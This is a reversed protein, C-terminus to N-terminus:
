LPVAELLSVEMPLEAARDPRLGASRLLAGYEASTREAGGTMVMMHLDFAVSLWPHSGDPLIREAVLVRGGGAPMAARCNALIRRARADDWNHLVRSLIHVEGEPVGDLFDGEVLSCRGEAVFHLLRERAPELTGRRDLLVGIVHQHRALVAELVAGDGGGVDVVRSVASFDHAAALNEAFGAGAATGAVFRRAEQPRRSLYSHVDEGCAAEFSQRGTRVQQALGDWAVRYLPSDYLLALDRMSAPHDSALLAGTRTLSYRGQDEEVLGVSALMRLLRVLGGRRVNLEEALEAASRPGDALGDAVGLEAAAAIAKGVWPGVLLRLLERHEGDGGAM